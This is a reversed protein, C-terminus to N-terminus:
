KGVKLNEIFKKIGTLIILPFGFFLLILFFFAKNSFGLEIIAVDRTEKLIDKESKNM